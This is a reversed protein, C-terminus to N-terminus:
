WRTKELETYIELLDDMTVGEHNDCQEHLNKKVLHDRWYRMGTRFFDETYSDFDEDNIGPGVYNKRARFGEFQCVINPDIKKFLIQEPRVLYFLGDTKLILTNNITDDGNLLTQELQKRLPPTPYLERFCYIKYNLGEMLLFDIGLESDSNIIYEKDNIMIKENTIQRDLIIQRDSSTFDNQSLLTPNSCPYWSNDLQLRYSISRYPDEINICFKM